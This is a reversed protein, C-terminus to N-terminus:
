TVAVRVLKIVPVRATEILQSSEVFAKEKLAENLVIMRQVLEAKSYIRLGCIAIDADSTELALETALSGYMTCHAGSERFVEKVIGELQAIIYKADILMLKTRNAISDLKAYIEEDLNQFFQVQRLYKLYPRLLVESPTYKREELRTPELLVLTDSQEPNESDAESLECRMTDISRKTDTREEGDDADRLNNLSSVRKAPSTAENSLEDGISEFALEHLLRELIFAEEEERTAVSTCKSGELWLSNLETYDKGEKIIELGRDSKEILEKSCQNLPLFYISQIIESNVIGNFYKTAENFENFQEKLPELFNHLYSKSKAHLKKYREILLHELYAALWEGVSHEEETNFWSPFRSKSKRKYSTVCFGKRGLLQRISELLKKSNRALEKSITISDFSGESRFIRTESVLYSDAVEAKNAKLSERGLPGNQTTLSFVTNPTKAM